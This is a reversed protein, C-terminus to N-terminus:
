EVNKLSEVMDIRSLRINMVLNVFVAFVISLGVAFFYSRLLIIKPFMLLDIEAAMLVYAHLFIGAVLGLAIGILTVIINERYIYMSLEENYFGLVKITALERVRETININTLNFLVVFALSCALIILVIAVIELADTSDSINEKLDNTHIVARVDSNGLLAGASTGDAVILVSNYLPAAGFLGAYLEPPMYIHHLVYNEVVGTVLASYASGDNSTFGFSAGESIGLDRALKESILIGGPALPVTEGSKRSYLGIFGSLRGATEPVIMSLPYASGDATLSEERIYLRNGSFLADLDSRQRESTIEKLYARSDYLELKDYQLDAIAAL